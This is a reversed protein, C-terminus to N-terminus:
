FGHRRLYLYAQFENYTTISSLTRQSIPKLKRETGVIIARCMPCNDNESLWKEICTTGFIHGCTLEIPQRNDRMVDYPPRCRKREKNDSRVNEYEMLCIPCAMNDHELDKVDVKKVVAQYHIKRMGWAIAEDMM